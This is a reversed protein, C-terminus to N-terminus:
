LHVFDGRKVRTGELLVARAYRDTVEVIEVRGVEREITDLLIGTSPDILTRVVTSVRYQDGTQVGSSQNANLYM